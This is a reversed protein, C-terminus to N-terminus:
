FEDNDSDLDLYNSIGDGLVPVILINGESDDDEFKGNNNFDEILFVMTILIWIVLMLSVMAMQIWYQSKDNVATCMRQKLVTRFVTGM